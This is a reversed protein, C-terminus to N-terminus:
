LKLEPLKCMMKIVCTGEVSSSNVSVHLNNTFICLFAYFFVKYCKSQLGKTHGRYWIIYASVEKLSHDTDTKPDSCVM